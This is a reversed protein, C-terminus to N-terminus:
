SRSKIQFGQQNDVASKIDLFQLIEKNLVYITQLVLWEVIYVVIDLCCLFIESVLCNELIANDKMLKVQDSGGEVPVIQIQDIRKPAICRYDKIIGTVTKSAITKGEKIRLDYQPYGYM